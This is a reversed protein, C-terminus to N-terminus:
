SRAFKGLTIVLDTIDIPKPLHADMGSALVRQKDESFANATMAIIPLGSKEKDPLERIARTAEFGNMRPMQIDMLVYDYYGPEAESVKRVAIDGDEAEFVTMGFEELISRAIERNMENDEVLLVRKGNLVETDAQTTEKIPVSEDDALCFDLTISVTTGKGPESQIDITGGMADILKKVISMGLGTGEIKSSTSNRERSFEDFIKDLFEESMGIGTDTVTIKYRGKEKDDCRLQELTATVMGGPRTYKVANGLINLVVQNMRLDDCYVTRNTINKIVGKLKIGANRATSDVITLVDDFRTVIDLAEENIVVKNAEIRSMDLVQNILRLLQQGSIDIKELYDTVRDPYNVYKKAMATYGTIANMPTRIDHSMNFLFSTKAQNELTAQRITEELIAERERAQVQNDINIIGITLSEKDDHDQAFKMRYHEPEDHFLLRFDFQYTVHKVVEQTIVERNAKAQFRDYDEPYLNDLLLQRFATPETPFSGELQLREMFKSTARYIKLTNNVYSVHGVFDYDNALCSIVSRSMASDKIDSIEKEYQQKQIHIINTVDQQVGETRTGETYTRDLMGGTRVFIRGREPHEWEYLVEAHEKQVISNVADDILPEYGDCIRAEWFAFTEEPTMEEKIGCQEKMLEDFYMRPACGENCEYIWTGMKSLSMIDKLRGKGFREMTM